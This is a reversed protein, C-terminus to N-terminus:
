ATTQTSHQVFHRNITHQHEAKLGLLRYSADYLDRKVVDLSKELRGYMLLGMVYQYLMRGTQEADVTKELMGDDILRQVMASNYQIAKDALTQAALRVKEEGSGAQSGSTFFPCGSVPNADADAHETNTQKTIIMTLLDELQQLPPNTPSFICELDDRMGEWYYMSAEYFLDAKTEFYHYFSGKTVGAQKCIEAVGVNSYSSRWILQIATDMLKEKTTTTKSVVFLVLNNIILRNYMGTPINEIGLHNILKEKRKVTLHNSRLTM